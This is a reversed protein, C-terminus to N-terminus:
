AAAAEEFESLRQEIARRTEAAVSRDRARAMLKLKEHLEGPVQIHLPRIDGKATAM